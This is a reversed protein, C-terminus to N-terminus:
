PTVTLTTTGDEGGASATIVTTGNAVATALGTEADITATEPTGSGWTFAPQVVLSV